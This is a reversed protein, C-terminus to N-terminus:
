ELLKVLNEKFFMYFRKETGYLKKYKHTYRFQDGETTVKILKHKDMFKSLEITSSFPYIRGSDSYFKKLTKILFSPYVFVFGDDEEIRELPDLTESFYQQAGMTNLVAEAIIEEDPRQIAEADNEMLIDGITSLDGQVLSDIYAENFCGSDQLYKKFVEAAVTFTAFTEVFRPVVVNLANGRRVKDFTYRMMPLLMKQNRTVFDIFDVAFTPVIELNNQHWTLAELNCDTKKIDVKVIRTKSSALSVPFVEGTIVGSSLVPTYESVGPNLQAFIKSRKKSLNSGYSRVLLELKSKMAKETTKNDPPTIDDFITVADANKAM